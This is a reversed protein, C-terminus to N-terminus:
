VARGALREAYALPSYLFTHEEGEPWKWFNYDDLNAYDGGLWVEGFVQGAFRLKAALGEPTTPVLSFLQGELAEVRQQFPLGELTDLDHECANAANIAEIWEAYLAPLPDPEAGLSTTSSSSAMAAAPALPLAASGALAARRTLKATTM